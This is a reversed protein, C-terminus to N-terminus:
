ERGLYGKKWIAIVSIVTIAVAALVFIIRGQLVTELWGFMGIIIGLPGMPPPTTPTPVPTAPEEPILTTPAGQPVSPEPTMTIEPNIEEITSSITASETATPSPTAATTSGPSGGGGGGGGGGGTIYRTITLTLLQFPNGHRNLGALAFTSLGDPSYAGYYDLGQGPDSYLFTTNLIESSGDDGIRLIRMSDTTVQITKEMPDYGSQVALVTHSGTSLPVTIPSIGAFEGDVYIKAGEPDTGIDTPIIYQQSHERVWTTNVSMVVTAPGMTDVNEKDFRATYAVDTIGAFNPSPNVAELLKQYDAPTVGEWLIAAVKGFQPYESLDLSFNVSCNKGTEESFGDPHFECSQIQIGTLNGKVTDNGEGAFGVGDESYLLITKLNRDPAPFIQLMSNNAPDFTCNLESINCTIEQQTGNQEVSLGPIEFTMENSTGSVVTIFGPYMVSSNGFINGAVLSINYAGPIEYVHVPNQEQATTNDGFDWLWSDPNGDSMDTFQVTLPSPGGDPSASFKAIPAGGVTILNQKQIQDRCYPTDITLTVTYTGNASYEHIPNQERSSSGDGFDWTWHAPTGSSTDNFRVTLPSAGLTVNESFDAEPCTGTAGITFLYIDSTYEPERYASWVIRDGSIDPTNHDVLTNTVEFVNGTSINYLFINSYGSDIRDLWIIIDNGIRPDTPSSDQIGTDLSLIKLTSIQYLYILSHPGGDDEWVIYDNNLSPSRYTGSINSIRTKLGSNINYIYIDSTDNRLDVWIIREGYVVPYVQDASDNTIQVQDGSTINYLYIDWEGNQDDQWVILNGSISPNESNSSNYTIRYEKATLIDYLYIESNGNRYDQWVIHNGSIAPNIQESGDDTIPHEVSTSVNYLYIDWNGNRNDEWVISDGSIAPNEQYTESTGVTILTVIGQISGNGQDLAATTSVLVIGIILIASISIYIKKRNIM